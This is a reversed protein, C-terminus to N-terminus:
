ASLCMAYSDFSSTNYDMGIFSGRILSNWIPTREGHFFPFCMLDTPNAFRKASAIMLGGIRKSPAEIKATFKLRYCGCEFDDIVSIIKIQMITASQTDQGLYCMGYKEDKKFVNRINSSYPIRFAITFTDGESTKNFIFDTPHYEIWDFTQYFNEESYNPLKCIYIDKLDRSDLYIHNPM